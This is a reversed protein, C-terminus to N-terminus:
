RTKQKQDQVPALRYNQSESSPISLDLCHKLVPSGALPYSWLSASFDAFDSKSNLWLRRVLLSREGRSFIEVRRPKATTMPNSKM